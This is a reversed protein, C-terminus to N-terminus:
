LVMCSDPSLLYPMVAAQFNSFPLIDDTINIGLQEIMFTRRGQIRKWMTPYREAIESRLDAAAVAFGDEAFAGYHPGKATPFFDAQWYMGSVITEQSGEYVLSHTWEDSAIMHGANLGMHFGLPLLRDFVAHHLEDGTAGISMTEYRAALAEAYPAATSQEYDQIESPLDASGEALWGFGACVNTNQRRFVPFSM